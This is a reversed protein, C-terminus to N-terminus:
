PASSLLHPSCRSHARIARIALPPTANAALQCALNMGEKHATPTFFFCVLRKPPATDAGM